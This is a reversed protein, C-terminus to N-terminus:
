KPVAYVDVQITVENPIEATSAWYGQGVGYELRNITVESTLHFRVSGGSADMDVEFPFSIPHTQDRITLTGESVFSDMGTLSCKQASFTAMPFQDVDFLEYDLLYDLVEPSDVSIDNIPISVQFDCSGPSLLDIDFTASVNKFEGRYPDSGYAYNFYVHSDAQDIVWTAAQAPLGMVLLPAAILARSLLTRM